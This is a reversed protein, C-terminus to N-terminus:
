RFALITSTQNMHGLYAEGYTSFGVMPIGSFIAGYQDGRDENRLQQTRLCCQFEILGQIGGLAGRHAEIAARTDAVIDTTELVALETGQKIRCYFVISRDEVRKPSRVFPEEEIMLGLPHHLFQSAAQEPALDLTEAYADLAPKHNFEIVKRLREDVRTAALTRGTPRFSQTKIIEFGRKLRLLLLVAADGYSKGNALVHTSEFKLDDGASGGIFFVDTADGIREMLREEAGSLGDVLVLGVHKRLDLSSIPAKFHREFKSFAARVCTERSIDEVVDFAADEVIDEDLFIAVVSGNLMTGCAIEGATSCGAVCAEPFAEQMQRSLAPSDYRASGFFLVLKPRRDGCQQKLDAVADPLPKTSYATTIPTTVGVGFDAAIAKLRALVAPDDTSNENFLDPPIGKLALKAKTTLAITPNGKARQKVIADILRRIQGAM